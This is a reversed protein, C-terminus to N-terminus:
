TGKFLKEASKRFKASLAEVLHDMIVQVTDELDTNPVVPIDHSEAQTTLFSQLQWIADFNNLYRESRRSSVHQGRGKLQKRLTKKKTVVVILPVVLSNSTERLRAQMAPHIHVGELILSVQEREARQMVADIGVGVQDAQMLYGAELPARYEKEVRSKTSVMKEHAQFSSSHLTPMLREPIMLRMVERLMDTSQTRVINLRHALEASLTSKGSGTTGGILLVLPHASRSFEIWMAYRQAMESSISERLYTHTIKALDATSITEVNQSLLMQEISSTIAFSEDSSFACIELTQALLGKSFPLQVGDSDEVIIPAAKDGRAKYREAAEKYDRKRLLKVVIEELETTLIEKRDEVESRVHDAIKYADDFTLGAEILSRTMIGRLFPVRSEEINDVVLVAM